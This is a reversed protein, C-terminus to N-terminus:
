LGLFIDAIFSGSSSSCYMDKSSEETTPYEVLAVAAIRVSLASAMMELCIFETVDLAFGGLAAGYFYGSIPISM